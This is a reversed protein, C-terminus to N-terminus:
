PSPSVAPTASAAPSKAPGEMTVSIEKLLERRDTGRYLRFRPTSGPMIWPAEQAGKDGRAFLKEDVGNTLYVEGTGNGTNWGVTTVGM